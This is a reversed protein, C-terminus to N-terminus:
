LNKIKTNKTQKKTIGKKKLAWDICNLMNESYLLSKKKFVQGMKQKTM